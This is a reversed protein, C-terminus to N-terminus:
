CGLRREAPSIDIIRELTIRMIRDPSKSTEEQAFGAVSLGFATVLWATGTEDEVGAALLSFYKIVGSFELISNKRGLNGPTMVASKFLKGPTDVVGTLGFLTM